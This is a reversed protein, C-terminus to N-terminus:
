IFEVFFEAEFEQPRWRLGSLDAILQLYEAIDNACDVMEGDDCFIGVVVADEFAGDGTHRIADDAAIAMQQFEAGVVADGDDGYPVEHILDFRGGSIATHLMSPEPIHADDALTRRVPVWDNLEEESM